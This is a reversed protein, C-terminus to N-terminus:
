KLRKHITQYANQVDIINLLICGLIYLVIGVISGIILQLLASNFLSITCITGICMIILAIFIRISDRLQKLGGYGFYKGPYYTNIFFGIIASILNGIVVAKIGLPITIILIIIELPLKSLDVKMFLDSRGIANLLNMNIASLPTWMRAFCLIQIFSVCPLWKETLLIIVLPKAIIALLVMAPFSILTTYFLSKRYVNLMKDKNSQLESLIPFTVTGIVDNITWAIMETFLSARTFLGLQDSKYIKGIAITSINNFITVISSATLLKSGFHFLEKFSQWSFAWLPTWKTYYFFLATMTITSIISQIVLAWVGYHNIAIIIGCIGGIITGIFNIKALSKFDMEIMLQARQVINISSIIINLSLVRLIPVLIPTEYFTAIYPALVFLILYLFLAVIFNFYFVTTFDINNRDQKQILAKAFGSEIFVTSLAIFITLMGVLGYDSPSLIRALFISIIFSSSKVAIKELTNWVTGKILREKINPVQPM